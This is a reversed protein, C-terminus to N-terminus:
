YCYYDDLKALIGLVGEFPRIQRDVQGFAPQIVAVVCYNGAIKFLMVFRDRINLDIAGAM